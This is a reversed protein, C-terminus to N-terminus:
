ARTRLISSGTFQFKNSRSCDIMSGRNGTGIVMWWPWCVIPRYGISRSSQQHMAINQFWHVDNIYPSSATIQVQLYTSLFAAIQHTCPVTMRNYNRQQWISVMYVTDPFFTFWQDIHSLFKLHCFIETELVALVTVYPVAIVRRSTVSHQRM